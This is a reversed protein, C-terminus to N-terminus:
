KREGSPMTESESPQVALRNEVVPAYGNGLHQRILLSPDTFSQATNMLGRFPAEVTINFIFPLGLFQRSIVKPVTSLEGRNVGNFTVRTVIEGDIAGDMLITLCKYQLDKLADFAMRGMRGLNENSVQGVYSLNGAQRNPDCPINLTKVSDIILPPMGQQRANLIGGVIQGGSADFVMPLLGDFTGTASINELELTQIFAGAELGVVRFTLKRAKDASMDMVSPLLTLDGGSFPWQGGEIAVRQEPMLAYRIVGDRVEIGPNVSALRVEQGPASVLGILDTFHVKTSLGQVPGFAAALDMGETAFDGSSTVKDPTWDIVGAGNVTGFVNAVVGLALHTVEDPQLEKDFRLGNMLLDAHGVGSDLDHWIAVDAVKRKRGPLRLHGGADIRGNALRFRFDPSELPNFRDPTADDYVIVSGEVELGGNAFAWGAKGDRVLLPVTGIRAEIGSAEGALGSSFVAGTLADARLLVPESDGGLHLKAGSLTFVGDGLGYQAAAASFRLRTDGVQGELRPAELRAGGRLVGNRSVILGGDMPCLRLSNGGLTLSGAKLGAFRVSACAPNLVFGGRRDLRADVPLELARVYGDPLPGNLRLTTTIRTAGGGQASFRVTSAELRAGKAAYPLMDMQGSFGGGEGQQLRLAMEPLGGGRSTLNGEMAWRGDALSMDFSGGQGFAIRSGRAGAWELSSLRLHLAESEQRVAYQSRMRGGSQLAGLGGALKKVLPGVPTAVSAQVMDQMAGMDMLRIDQVDLQGDAKLAGDRAWSWRTDVKGQGLRMDSYGLGAMRLAGEGQMAEASGNFRMDIDPSALTAGQVRVAEAGGTIHAKVADLRASLSIDSQLALKSSTIAGDDCRVADARLPGSFRPVGGKTSIDLYASAQPASCGAIAADRILAAAKGTFGSRINGAGRLSLGVPGAPTELRMRADDLTLDINPLEFPATSEPDRFKDLEGLSMGTDDVRGYVRVGRARIAGIRPIISGYALDIEVSRATLDPRDPNGLVLNEIRQTRLAVQTVEYSAQVDRAALERQVFREAISQREIWFYTLAIALSVIFTLFVVRRASIIHQDPAITAGEEAQEAEAQSMIQEDRWSQAFWCIDYRNLARQPNFIRAGHNPM